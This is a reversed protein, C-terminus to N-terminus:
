ILARLIDGSYVANPILECSAWCGPCKRVWSRQEEIKDGFWVDKFATKRLDGVVRSNYLCVPITGDPNIRVHSRLAVCRPKPEYRAHLLRNKLGKVYYKKALKESFDRTKRNVDEIFSFVEELDNETFQGFTDLKGPFDYASDGGPYYLPVSGYAMVPHLGVGLERCVSWLKEYEEFDNGTITLDVGLYFGYSDRVENLRSLTDLAKRYAGKVGRISDHKSGVADISVKIHIRQPHSVSEVFGVIDDTLIGNTTLHVIDPDAADCVVDVVDALDPRLFPEGGSIRVADLGKLQTFVSKIEDLRLEYTKKKRWIDCMICRANCRWTVLYTCFSPNMRAGVMNGLVAGCIGALTSARLGNM